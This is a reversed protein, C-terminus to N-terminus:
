IRTNKANEIMHKRFFIPPREESGRLITYITTLIITLIM